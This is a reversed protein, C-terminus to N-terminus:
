AITSIVNIAAYLAYLRWFEDDPPQTFYGNIQGICYPVSHRRSFLALNYFDHYPDGVDYGNFDIVGNFSNQHCIIHGLHYDDHLLTTPRQRLLPWHEEIFYLLKAEQPIQYSDQQYAQLYNTFKEKQLTEWHITKPSKVQHIKRLEKGAMLGLHYQETDSLQLIIEDAPSGILYSMVMASLHDDPLVM